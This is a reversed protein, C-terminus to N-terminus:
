DHRAGPLFRACFMMIVVCTAILYMKFGLTVGIASALWIGTATTINEVRDGQRMMIGAGIFGVGQAVAQALRTPDLGAHAGLMTFVMSGLIVFSHTVIGAPKEKRKREWGIIYGFLLALAAGVIFQGTMALEAQGILTIVQNIHLNLEM